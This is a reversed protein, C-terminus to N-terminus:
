KKFTAKVVKSKNTLAAIYHETVTIVNTRSLIDRDAEVLADRKLYITVAPLAPTGDEIEPEVQVIFNNFNGGAEAIKRSVVVNCGAVKGIVGTSMVEGGFKNRDIFNPDKRLTAEQAPAIFLYKIVGDQEEEFKSCADVIGNYSIAATDTHTLTAGNLAALVDNDVKSAISAALQRAANGVPDGFGSLVASDTLEVGKGAEKIKYKDTTASMKEVTMAVGETLDVADGIYGWVPVTVEDGPIGVLTNDIAAIQTFKIAKPLGAQVMDAMVQPKIVDTSTTKGAAFLQLGFTFKKNSM